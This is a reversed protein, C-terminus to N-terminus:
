FNENHEDKTPYRQKMKSYMLGGYDDGISIDVITPLKDYKLLYNKLEKYLEKSIAKGDIRKEM